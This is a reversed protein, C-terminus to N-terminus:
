RTCVKSVPMDDLVLPFFEFLLVFLGLDWDISQKEVALFVDEPPM